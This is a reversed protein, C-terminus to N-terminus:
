SREVGNTCEHVDTYNVCHGTVEMKRCLILAAFDNCLCVCLLAVGVFIHM